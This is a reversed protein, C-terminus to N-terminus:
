SSVSEISIGELYDLLFKQSRASAKIINSKRLPRPTRNEVINSIGRIEVVPIKSLLGIHAVSAGEMNECIADFRKEIERGKKLIGTCTSVTIFNGKRIDKIDKPIFMPFENFYEIGDIVCFPMKIKNLTYFNTEDEISKQSTVRSKQSRLSTKQSRKEVQALLGEDGYIEKEAIAIDAIKLGSSPYAGAVGINYIIKPKYKEILISTSQAANVKGIGSISLVINLKKKFFGTFFFKGQIFFDKKNFLEPIILDVELATSAIIAIM